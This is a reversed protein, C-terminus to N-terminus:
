DARTGRRRQLFLNEDPRIFIRAFRPQFHGSRFSQNATETKAAMGGLMGQVDRRRDKTRTRDAAARLRATRKETRLPRM